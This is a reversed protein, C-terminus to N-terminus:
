SRYSLSLSLSDHCTKNSCLCTQCQKINQDHSVLSVGTLVNPSFFIPRKFALVTKGDVSNPSKIKSLYLTVFMSENVLLNVLIVLLSCLKSVM